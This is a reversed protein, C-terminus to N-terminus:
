KNKNNKLQGNRQYALMVIFSFQISKNDDASDDDDNCTITLM